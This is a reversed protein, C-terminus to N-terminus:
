VVKSDTGNGLTNPSHRCFINHPNAAAQSASPPTKGGVATGGWARDVGMAPLAAAPLRAGTTGRRPLHGAHSDAPALRLATLLTACFAQGRGGVDAESGM